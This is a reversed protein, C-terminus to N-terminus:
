VEVVFSGLWTNGNAGGNYDNFDVFYGNEYTEGNFILIPQIYTATRNGNYANDVAYENIIDLNNWIYETSQFATGDLLL